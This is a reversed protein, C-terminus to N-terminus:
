IWLVQGCFSAVAVYEAETTSNAVISQKKCQWSILRKCLFQCGKITSKRDLSAGFYDSDSFAELDFPSDIHYWLGLKPQGKVYRFIRNEAYLHLTKLTVQFRACACVAFVIDPRFPTLYMLSGIMSRYLHVDVDKAEADKILAKNPEMPTSTTKVTPFDFKELLDAVYKDQNIFIGDDKKQLKFQLLEEQMAEIWSIDILAQIVKKPEIQSLFCALLCNQYDKHNTRRQKNIYSVMANEKSFNIMRRTQTALNLDKIIQEKPHDKHVRTTPIPSVVILFELNNTDAEAGVQRDDYVGDFIGIKELSPMSLDNSGASNINLSGTNINTNAINISPGATNVDQTSSNAREQDDNKSGKSVCEDGKGPAEDANKDDSSRFAKNNVSYGVLFGEDANGKLNGLHDLTNLITVLCGFPKMFDINPSEDITAEAFLCTLGGSSAINKLDFSYMNNQRPVKLLVQNEDLLKFNPSLVLCETETFLVSSKKDYMQSVSFLNFKLEKVFYVDEFDLKGTKIKGKGSIKGGKPSGVFAVFGGDIEQYDTLSSKNVTMHRSCGSDFIGQDSKLRGQLDVYNFRKLMYSGSDRPSQSTKKPYKTQMNSEEQKVSKRPSKVHETSKSKSKVKAFSPKIQKSEYEIEDEDDSDSVWDEIITASVNKLKTMSTKVESKPINPLSTVSESVVHEDAFVLDPKSPMYNWKFILEKVIMALSTISKDSQQSDLLRSLNKSSGEFKEITLKLDDREKEFKKFKQRLETIAKDRLMVDLKLINIEDEFVAEKKKYVELRAEVSALGAKYAGLNFQSKNFDKTLNDYHEKLTEYSKLCAKSCTSVETDSNLSSSSIAMQWKLDMEELDDHDIQKLDENDLQPSNSQSAFFSYIIADSLSDVNPLNSANTKSSAAFVGHTTNVAKNTSDTNNSSVFAINQTNQTTSSSGMVEAKYIKLNNYLDDMRLTELDILKQLRDYIQDLGESSTGTFNEYQQKLLTKQVKKSEKNGGFRKKIAEMLSKATMYYKFKLQHENPLTMLLTGKAKLENNRALKEEVTTPPYPTVAGEITRTPPPSDGNLIVKWLAYDTMLFYQEIRMKWLEFENPNLVPLKAAAVMQTSLSEM